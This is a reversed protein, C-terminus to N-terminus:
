NGNEIVFHPGQGHYNGKTYCMIKTCVSDRDEKSMNIFIHCMTLLQSKIKFINLFNKTLSKPNDYLSLAYNVSSQGFLSSNDIIEKAWQKILNTDRIGNRVITKFDNPNIVKKVEDWESFKKYGVWGMQALSLRYNFSCSNGTSLRSSRYDYGYPCWHSRIHLCTTNLGSIGIFEDKDERIYEDDNINVGRLHYNLSNIELKKLSIGFLINKTFLARFTNNIGDLSHDGSFIAKIIENKNAKDYVWIDSKNWSEYRKIPGDSCSELYRKILGVINTNSKNHECVIQSAPINVANYIIQPVYYITRCLYEDFDSINFGENEIQVIFNDLTDFNFSSYNNLVFCVIKEYTNGIQYRSMRNPEARFRLTFKEGDMDVDFLPPNQKYTIGNKKAYSMFNSMVQSRDLSDKGNSRVHIVLKNEKRDKKLALDLRDVPECGYKNILVLNNDSLIKNICRELSPTSLSRREAMRNNKIISELIIDKVADNQFLNYTKEAMKIQKLVSAYTFNFTSM